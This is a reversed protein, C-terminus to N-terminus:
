LRLTKGMRNALIHCVVEFYVKFLFMSICLMIRKNSVEFKVLTQYDYVHIELPSIHGEFCIVYKLM